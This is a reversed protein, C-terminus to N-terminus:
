LLSSATLEFARESSMWQKATLAAQLEALTEAASQGGQWWRYKPEADLPIILDGNEDIHPKNSPPRWGSMCGAPCWVKRWRKGQDSILEAGCVTCNEGVVFTSPGGDPHKLCWVLETKYCKIYHRDEDTLLSKPSISLNFDDKLSIDIGRAAFKRIIEEALM